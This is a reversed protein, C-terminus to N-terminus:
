TAKHILEDQESKMHNVSKMYRKKIHNLKGGSAKPSTFDFFTNQENGQSKTRNLTKEM